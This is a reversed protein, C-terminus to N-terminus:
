DLLGYLVASNIEVPYKRRLAMIWEKELHDQYSAIVQGRAESLSKPTPPVLQRVDILVIGEEGVEFTMFRPAKSNINFAGKSIADFVTDAWTNVGEPYLASEIRIALPRDAILERRMAEIDDGKKVGKKVKKALKGDECTYVAIDLRQPWM